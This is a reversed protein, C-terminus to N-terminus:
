PFEGLHPLAAWALWGFLAAHFRLSAWFSPAKRGQRLLYWAAGLILANLCAMSVTHRVGQYRVGFEWGGVFWIPTFITLIGLLVSSKFPIVAKGRFLHPVWLYFLLAPMLAALPSIFIAPLLVLSAWPSLLSPGKAISVLGVLAIGAGTLIVTRVPNCVSGAGELETM